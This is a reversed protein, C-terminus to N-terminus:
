RGFMEAAQEIDRYLNTTWYPLDSSAILPGKRPDTPTIVVNVNEVGVADVALFLEEIAVDGIALCGISSARGHIFINSGPRHRQELKAHHLDFANPYNLKMSLHYKSNPNLAVVRYIGEPVQKDGERLKPGLEGSQKTVKYRKIYRWEYDQRAWLEVAAEDKIAFLGLKEPPFRVASASFITKLRPLVIPTYRKRVDDITRSGRPPYDQYSWSEAAAHTVSSTAIVFGMVLFRVM